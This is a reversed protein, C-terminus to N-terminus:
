RGLVAPLSCSLLQSPQARDDADTVLLLQGRGDGGPLLAVGEVKCVTALRAQQVVRGQRGSVLGIASGRCPGDDYSDSTDEAAASFLWDGSGDALATGDTFALPVGDIEGLEFATTGLAVPLQGGGCVWGIFAAAEFHISANRRGRGNGRQLLTLQGDSFFAGEINLEGLQPRLPAYLPALDITRSPGAIRGAADLPVVFARERSPKSGSGMALLAGHAFAPTAPLVALAECDPKAAKRAAHEQPLAGAALPLLTGPADSERDFIGLALEDDAVVYLHTGVVVLGSAASIHPPESCGLDLVRLLESRIM